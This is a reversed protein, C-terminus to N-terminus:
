RNRCSDIGIDAEESGIGIETRITGFEEVVHGAVGALVTIAFEEHSREIEPKVQNSHNAAFGQVVDSPTWGPNECLHICQCIGFEDVLKIGRRPVAQWDIQEDAAGAAKFRTHLVHAFRDSDSANDTPKQFM